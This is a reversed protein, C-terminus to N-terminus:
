NICILYFKQFGYSLNKFQSTTKKFNVITIINLFLNNSWNLYFLLHLLNFNKNPILFSDGLFNLLSTKGSGNKGKLILNTANKLSININELLLSDIKKTTIDKRCTLISSHNTIYFM